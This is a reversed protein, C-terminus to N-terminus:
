NSLKTLKELKSISDTKIEFAIIGSDGNQEIFLGTSNVKTVKGELIKGNNETVRIFEDKLDSINQINFDQFTLMYLPKKPLALLDGTPVYDPTKEQEAKPPVIKEPAQKEEDTIAVTSSEETQESLSQIVDTEAKAQLSEPLNVGYQQLEHSLYQNGGGYWAGLTLLTGIIGLYFGIYARHWVSPLIIFNLFPFLAIVGTFFHHKFGGIIVILLGLFFLLIGILLAISLAMEM